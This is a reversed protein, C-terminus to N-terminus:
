KKWDRLILVIVAVNLILLVINIIKEMTESGKKSKTNVVGIFLLIISIDALPIFGRTSKM